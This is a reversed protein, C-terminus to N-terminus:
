KGCDDCRVGPAFGASRSCGPLSRSFVLEDSLQPIQCWLGPGRASDLSGILTDCDSMRAVLLQLSASTKCNPDYRSAVAHRGVNQETNHYREGGNRVGYRM